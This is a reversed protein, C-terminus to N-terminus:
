AASEEKNTMTMIFYDVIKSVVIDAVDSKSINKYPEDGSKTVWHISTHDTGFVPNDTQGVLNAVIADCQKKLLKEKANKVLNETEAAFGIVVDPRNKHTAIAHLIDPNDTLDLHLDGQSKKHKQPKAVVGYDSVAAACVAIDAPLANHVTDYMDRATEVHIIKVGEPDPLTTPGSILTVDAGHQALSTAIAHGQKGSSRNGIFRVPDIPEYTPGSTVIATKGQLPQNQFLFTEIHNLLEEAEVMRGAGTEGCAMEGSEPHIIHTGRNTLTQLNDQTAPNDWMMPNMAPAIMVPKNSALICTSALDNAMGHAMKAMFDASCPAVVILDAWRSLQIHGMETEDTLDFLDVYCKEGSLSAVSLPTIFEAGGKTLICKVMGGTKKILRILELSKYAAIGGTIILLIKKNNLTIM